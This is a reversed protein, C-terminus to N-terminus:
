LLNLISNREGMSRAHMIIMIDNGKKLSVCRQAEILFGTKAIDAYNQISYNRDVVSINRSPTQQTAITYSKYRLAQDIATQNFAAEAIIAMERATTVTHADLGSPDFFLTKALGLSEAKRNMETVFDGRTLGSNDVLAIAAQNSSAVLMAVWLDYIRIADGAKLNVESTVDDGVFTRPYDLQNQTITVTDTWNINQDLLVLATMLKTMSAPPLVQDVYRGSEIVGNRLLIYAVDDFTTDHVVQTNNMPVKALNVNSIGVAFERMLDYAAQGDKLYYRLGDQPNIYWAEGHQEVQLVIRGSLRTALERDGAGRTSTPLQALDEDSIGLGMERMLDYATQGDKLYYRQKDVPNVYWARGYSEVQLLIQGSFRDALSEPAAHTSFPLFLFLIFLYKKM